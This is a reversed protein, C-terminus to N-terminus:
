SRRSALVILAAMNNVFGIGSIFLAFAILVLSPLARGLNSISIAAFSGRHIHGLM